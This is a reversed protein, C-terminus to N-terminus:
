ELQLEFVDEGSYQDILPLRQLTELEYLGLNIHYAQNPDPKPIQLTRTERFIQGPLWNITSYFGDYPRFDLQALNNNDTDLWHLFITYDKQPQHRTLWFLTIVLNSMDENIPITEVTYGYLQIQDAWNARVIKEPLRSGSLYPMQQQFLQISQILEPNIEAQDFSTFLQEMAATDALTAHMAATTLGNDITRSTDVNDQMVLEGVRQLTDALNEEQNLYLIRTNGFEAELHSQGGAYAPITADQQWFILWVNPGNPSGDFCSINVRVPVPVNQYKFTCHRDPMILNQWYGYPKMEQWSIARGALDPYFNMSLLCRDRILKTQQADRAVCIIMDEPESHNRVYQTVEILQQTNGQVYINRLEPYAPWILIGLGIICLGKQLFNHDRGIQKSLWWIGYAALFVYSFLAFDAYKRFARFGPGLFSHLLMISLIPTITFLLLYSTQWRQHRGSVGAIAGVLIMVGYGVLHWDRAPTFNARRLLGLYSETVDAFNNAQFSTFDSGLNDEFVEDLNSVTSQSQLILLAQLSIGVIIIIAPFLLNRILTQRPYTLPGYILWWFGYLLTPILFLIAFLHAYIALTSSLAFLLWYRIYGTKLGQVLLISGLLSFFVMLVYGGRLIISSEVLSSLVSFLVAILLGVQYGFLQRGLTYALAISLVGIGISGWRFLFLDWGLFVLPRIILVHLLHGDIRYDVINSLASRTLHNNAINLDDVFMPAAEALTVRIGFGFLLIVLIGWNRM